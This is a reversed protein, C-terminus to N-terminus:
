VSLLRTVAMVVSAAIYATALGLAGRDLLAVIDLSFASFTTFGGLVGTGLFVRWAEAEPRRLLVGALVGMLLSGIINVALTGWPFSASVRACAQVVGYRLVGGIGAGIFVLLANM